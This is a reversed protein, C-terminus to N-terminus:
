LGDAVRLIGDVCFGTGRVIDGFQRAPRGHAWSVEGPHEGVLDALRGACVHLAYTGFGRAPLEHLGVVGDGHDSCPTPEAGCFGHPAVENSPDADRGVLVAFGEGLLCSMCIAMTKYGPKVASSKM